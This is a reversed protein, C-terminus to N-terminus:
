NALRTFDPDCRLRGNQSIPQQTKPDSKQVHKPMKHLCM